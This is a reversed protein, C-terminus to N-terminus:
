WASGSIRYRYGMGVSDVTIRSITDGNAPNAKAIRWARGHSLGPMQVANESGAGGNFPVPLAYTDTSDTRGVMLGYVTGATLTVPTGFELWMIMGDLNAPSSPATYSASFTVTDVTSAPSGSGTMVAAKYVGSGVITGYFGLAYLVIDINPTFENGKWAFASVSRNSNRYNWDSILSISELDGTHTHDATAYYAGEQGDLLDADLGSGSGDDDLIEALVVGDALAHVHDRRAAYASTGDSASTNVAAPDGEADNFSLGSSGPAANQWTSTGTDYTLVDGDAPTDIDVDNLDTLLTAGRNLWGRADIYRGIDTVGTDDYRIRVACLPINVGHSIADIDAQGLDTAYNQDSGSTATATNVLPNISVLVLRHKGSTTPKHSALTLTEGEYTEWVGNKYYRFPSVEVNWGGAPSVRGPEIRLAEIVYTLSTGIAHTHAPIGYPNTTEDTTSASYYAPDLDVITYTGGVELKMRVHLNARNPVKNLNKAITVSEGGATAVRVYVFNPRDTVAVQWTTSSTPKGLVGPILNRAESAAWARDFAKRLSM